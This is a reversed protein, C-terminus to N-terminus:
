KVADMFGGCPRYTPDTPGVLQYAGKDLLLKVAKMPWPNTYRRKGYYFYDIIDQDM